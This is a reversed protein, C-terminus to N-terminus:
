NKTSYKRRKLSIKKEWKFNGTRAKLHSEM